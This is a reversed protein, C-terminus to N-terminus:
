RIGKIEIGKRETMKHVKIILELLHEPTIDLMEFELKIKYYLKYKKNQDQCVVMDEYFGLGLKGDKSRFVSIIDKGIYEEPAKDMRSLYQYITIESM